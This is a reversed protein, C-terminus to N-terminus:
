TLLEGNLIVNRISIVKNGIKSKGQSDTLSKKREAVKFIVVDALSNCSLNGFGSIKKIATAPTYTVAKIVDFLSMGVLLFKEMTTTLNYVPGNINSKWLDTGIIDPYLGNEIAKGAVDWSFSSSGHGVDLYVGENRAKFFEEHITGNEDILGDIRKALPNYYNHFIHTIIDGKKLLKLPEPMYHNEIMAICNAKRAIDLAKRLSM